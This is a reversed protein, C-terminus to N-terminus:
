QATMVLSFLHLSQLGLQMIFLNSTELGITSLVILFDFFNKFSSFLQFSLPSIFFSSLFLHQLYELFFFRSLLFNLNCNFISFLRIILFLKFYSLHNQIVRLYVINDSIQIVSDLVKLQRFNFLTKFKHCLVM